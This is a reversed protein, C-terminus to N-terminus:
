LALDILLGLFVGAFHLHCTGIAHLKTATDYKSSSSLTAGKPMHAIMPAIEKLHHEHDEAVM